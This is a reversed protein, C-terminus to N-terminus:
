HEAGDLTIQQLGPVQVKKGTTVLITPINRTWVYHEWLQEIDSYGDTLIVVLSINEEEEANEELWDFVEKHSTGGSEAIEQFDADNPNFEEPTYRKVATLRDTHQLEIIEEVEDQDIAEAVAGKFLQLERKSISGSTDIVMVLKLREEDGPGPLITRIGFAWSKPRTWTQEQSKVLKTAIAQKLIEHWPLKPKLIKDILEGLPSSGAGRAKQQERAIRAVTRARETAEKAAQLEEESLEGNEKVDIPMEGIKKGDLYIEAVAQGQQDKQENQGGDNQGKRGKENEGEGSTDNAGEKGSSNYSSSFKVKIELRNQKMLKELVRYVEMETSKLAVETHGLEKQLIEKWPNQNPFIGVKPAKIASVEERQIRLLLDNIWLDEAINALQPDLNYEKGMQIHGQFIHLAEHMLVFALEGKSLQEAFKPSIYIRAGDTAATGVEENLEVPVTSLIKGLVETFYASSELPTALYAIVNNIKERVDSM